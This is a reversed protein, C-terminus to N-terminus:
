ISVHQVINLRTNSCLFCEGDIDIMSHKGSLDGVECEDPTDPGCRDLYGPLSIPGASFPDYHSGINSNCIGQRYDNTVQQYYM